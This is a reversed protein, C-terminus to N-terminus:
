EVSKAIDILKIKDRNKCAWRAAGKYTAFVRVKRLPRRIISTGVREGDTYIVWYLEM